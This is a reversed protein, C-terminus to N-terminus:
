YWVERVHGGADVFRLEVFYRGVQAGPAIPSLDDNRWRQGDFFAGGGSRGGQARPRTYGGTLVATAQGSPPQVSVDLTTTAPTIVSPTVLFQSWCDVSSAARLLQPTTGAISLMDAEIEGATRCVFLRASAGSSLLEAARSHPPRVLTARLRQDPSDFGAPWTVPQAELPPPAGFILRLSLGFAALGLGVAARWGFFAALAVQLAPILVLLFFAGALHAALSDAGLTIVAFAGLSPAVALAPRSASLATM